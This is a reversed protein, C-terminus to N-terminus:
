LNPLKGLPIIINDQIGVIGTQAGYDVGQSAATGTGTLLESELLMNANLSSSGLFNISREGIKDGTETSTSVLKLSTPTYADGPIIEYSPTLYQNGSNKPTYIHTGESNLELTGNISKEIKEALTGALTNYKKNVNENQVILHTALDPVENINRTSVINAFQDDAAKTLM